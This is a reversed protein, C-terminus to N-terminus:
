MRGRADARGFVDPLMGVLDDALEPPLSVKVETLPAITLTLAIPTPIGRFILLLSSHGPPASVVVADMHFFRDFYRRLTTAEHEVQEETYPGYVRQSHIKSTRQDICTVSLVFM